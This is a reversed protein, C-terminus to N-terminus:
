SATHTDPQSHQCQPTCFCHCAQINGFHGAILLLGGLLVWPDLAALGMQHHSHPDSVFLSITLLSVGILGILVPRKQRHKRYSAYFSITGVAIGALLISSELWPSQLFVQASPLLIVIFPFSLCHVLCLTALVLGTRDWRRSHQILEQQSM